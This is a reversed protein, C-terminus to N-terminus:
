RVAEGGGGGGFGDGEDMGRGAIVTIKSQSLPILSDSQYQRM